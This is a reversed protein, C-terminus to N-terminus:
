TSTSLAIARALEDDDDEEEESLEESKESDNDANNSVPARVPITEQSLSIARAILDGDYDDQFEDIVVNKSDNFDKMSETIANLIDPDTEVTNKEKTNNVFGKKSDEM